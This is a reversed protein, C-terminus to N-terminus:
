SPTSTSCCRIPRRRPRARVAVEGPRPVLRGARPHRAGRRAPDADPRGGTAVRRGRRARARDARRSAPLRRSRRGRARRVPAGRVAPPRPGDPEHLRQQQRPGHVRRSGDGRQHLVRRGPDPHLGRPRGVPAGDRVRGRRRRRVAAIPRREGGRVQHDRVRHRRQHPVARHRGPLLSVGGRRRDDAVPLAGRAPEDRVGARPGQRPDRVPLPPPGARDRAPHLRLVPARLDRHGLLLPGRVGRGLPGQRRPEDPRRPRGVPVPQVPQVPRGAPARRGRRDRRRLHELVPRPGRAARRRPGRVRRRVRGCARRAGLRRARGRPPRAVHRLRAAQDGRRHWRDAPRARDDPRLGVRGRVLGRHAGRVRRPRPRRALRPRPGRVLRLRPGRALRLRRGRVLRLQCHRRDSPRDRGRDRAAHDADAPRDGGM